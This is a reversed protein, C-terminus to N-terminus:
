VVKDKNCFGGATPQGLLEGLRAHAAEIRAYLTPRECGLEECQQEIPGRKCYHVIVAHHLKYSLQDVAWATQLVDSVKAVKISPVVGGGPPSWNPHLVSMMPYGSGDGVTCAEAWRQLRAEIAADRAM